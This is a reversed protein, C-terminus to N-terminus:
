DITTTEPRFYSEPPDDPRPAPPPAGPWTLEALATLAAGQAVLEAETQRVLTNEYVRLAIAGIAPMAAAFILVAFLITRLRLLPWRSAVLDKLREIM